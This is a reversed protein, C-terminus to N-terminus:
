ALLNNNYNPSYRELVYCYFLGTKLFTHICVFLNSKFNTVCHLPEEVKYPWLGLYSVSSIHVTILQKEHWDYISKVFFLQYTTWLKHQYDSSMIIILVSFMLLIFHVKPWVASCLRIYVNSKNSVLGFWNKVALLYSLLGTLYFPVTINGASSTIM